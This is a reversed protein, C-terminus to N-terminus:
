LDVFLRILFRGPYESQRWIRRISSRLADVWLWGSVPLGVFVIVGIAARADRLARIDLHPV